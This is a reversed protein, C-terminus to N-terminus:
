AVHQVVKVVVRGDDTPEPFIQYGTVHGGSLAAINAKFSDIYFQVEDPYFETAFDRDPFLTLVQEVSGPRSIGALGTALRNWIPHILPLVVLYLDNSPMASFKLV